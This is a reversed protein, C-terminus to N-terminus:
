FVYMLAVSAEDPLVFWKRGEEVPMGCKPCDYARYRTVGGWFGLGFEVNLHPRLMLSYGGSLGAGFADGEETRDALSFLIGNRNYEQWRVAGQAWWGSYAHWPWWRAGAWASRQKRHIENSPDKRGFEWPNWLFGAHLTAHRSLAVGVGADLTGYYLASAADLSVDATQASARGSSLALLASALVPIILYPKPKM